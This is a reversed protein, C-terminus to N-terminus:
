YSYLDEDTRKYSLIEEKKFWLEIEEEAEEPTGSAHIVNYITRKRIMSTLPAELGFDGRITGPAAELSFTHGVMKKVKEVANPGEFIFGFIPGMTLYDVNSKNVMHGIKVPDVTGYIEMLDLNHKKADEIRYGGVKKAWRDDKKYHRAVKDAEAMFLKAGTIKLGAREFRELIQGVIGRQVADPKLLVLSRQIM